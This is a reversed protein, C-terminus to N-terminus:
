NGSELRAILQDPTQYGTITGREDIVTPTGIIGGIRTVLEYNDAIPNPCM